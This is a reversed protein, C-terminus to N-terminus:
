IKGIDEVKMTGPRFEVYYNEGNNMNVVKDFINKDRYFAYRGIKFGGRMRWATGEIRVVGKELDKNFRRKRDLRFLSRVFFGLSIIGSIILLWGILSGLLQDKFTFTDSKLIFIFMGVSFLMISGSILTYLLANHDVELATKIEERERESIERVKFYKVKAFEIRFFNILVSVVLIVWLLIFPVRLFWNDAIISVGLASVLILISYIITQSKIIFKM